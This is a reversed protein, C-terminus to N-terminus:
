KKELPAILVFCIIAIIGAVVLLISTNFVTEKRTWAYENM